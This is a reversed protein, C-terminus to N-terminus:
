ASLASITDADLSLSGLILFYLFFTEDRIADIKERDELNHKHFFGNRYKKRWDSLQKRLYLRVFHRGTEFVEDFLDENAQATIFRQLSGLTTDIHDANDAEITDDHLERGQGVLYIIGWLLQEISKLYGAVIFTNDMGEMSFYKKFLWESTLFSKAFDRNGLLLEYRGQDIFMNKIKNFNFDNLDGLSPNAAHLENFREEKIRAYDFNRLEEDLESKLNALNHDNFIETIRYGVAQHMEDKYTLMANKFRRLEKAGFLKLLLDDFLMVNLNHIGYSGKVEAEQRTVTNRSQLSDKLLYVLYVPQSCKGVQDAFKRFADGRFALASTKLEVCSPQGNIIIQLDYQEAGTGMGAEVGYKRCLDFLLGEVHRVAIRDFEDLIRRYLKDDASTVEFLPEISPDSEKLVIMDRRLEMEELLSKKFKQYM